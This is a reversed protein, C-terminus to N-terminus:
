AVLQMVFHFYGKAMPYLFYQLLSDWTLTITAAAKTTTTTTKQHLWLAAQLICFSSSYSLHTDPNEKKAQRQTRQQSLQLCM